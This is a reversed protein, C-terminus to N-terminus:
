ITVAEMGEDTFKAEYVLKGCIESEFNLVFGEGVKKGVLQLYIVTPTERYVQIWIM